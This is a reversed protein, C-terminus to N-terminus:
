TTTTILLKASGIVSPYTMEGDDDIPSRLPTHFEVRVTFRTVNGLKKRLRAELQEQIALFGPTTQWEPNISVSAEATYGNRFSSRVKRHLAQAVQAISMLEEKKRRAHEQSDFAAREERNVQEIRQRRALAAKRAKEDTETFM